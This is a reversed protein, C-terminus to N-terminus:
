GNERVGLSARHEVWDTWHTGRTKEWGYLSLLLISYGFLDSFFLM